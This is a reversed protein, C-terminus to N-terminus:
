SKMDTKQCQSFNRQYTEWRRPFFGNWFVHFSMNFFMTLSHQPWNPPFGRSIPGQRLMPSQSSFLASTGPSLPHCVLQPSKSVFWKILCSSVFHCPKSSGVLGPAPMKYPVSKQKKENVPTEQPLADLGLPVAM